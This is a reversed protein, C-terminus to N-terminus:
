GHLTGTETKESEDGLFGLEVKGSKLMKLPSPDWCKSVPVNM